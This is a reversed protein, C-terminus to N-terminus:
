LDTDTDDPDIDGTYMGNPCHIYVAMLCVNTTNPQPVPLQLIIGPTESVWVKTTEELDEPRSALFNNFYNNEGVLEVCESGLVCGTFESAQSESM